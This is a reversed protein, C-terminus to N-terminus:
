RAEILHRVVGGDDLLEVLQAAPPEHTDQYHPDGGHRLQRFTSPAGIFRIGDTTTDFTQHVHGSLVLRVPGDRLVALLEDADALGCDPNSCPSVPPHHLCLVVDTRARALERAYGRWRTPGSEAPM